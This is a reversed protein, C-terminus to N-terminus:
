EFCKTILVPTILREGARADCYRFNLHTIVHKGLIPLQCEHFDDGLIISLEKLVPFEVESLLLVRQKDPRRELRVCADQLFAAYFSRRSLHVKQFIDVLSCNDWNRLHRWLLRIASNFWLRNVLIFSRLAIPKAGRVVADDYLAEAIMAVIEPLRLAKQTATKTRPVLSM